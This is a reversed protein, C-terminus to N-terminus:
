QCIRRNGAANGSIGNGMTADIYIGNEPAQPRIMEHCWYTVQSQKM